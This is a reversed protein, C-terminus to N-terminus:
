ALAGKEESGKKREIERYIKSFRRVSSENFHIQEAIKGISQTEKALSIIIAKRSLSLQTQKPTIENCKFSFM